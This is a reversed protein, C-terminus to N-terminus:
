KAATQLNSIAAELLDKERNSTADSLATRLSQLYANSRTNIEALAVDDFSGDQKAAGLAEDTESNKEANLQLKTVEVSRDSLLAGVRSLDSSTVTRLTALKNKTAADSLDKDALELIRVLETQQAQVAILDQNNTKGLSLIFSIGVIIIIVVFSVFGVILVIKRSGQPGSMGTPSKQHKPDFIFDYPTQQPNM